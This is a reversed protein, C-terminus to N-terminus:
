NVCITRKADDIYASTVNKSDDICAFPVNQIMSVRLHLSKSDDIFASPVKQIMLTRLLLTKFWRHVCISRKSDSICAYPGNQIISARLPFTKFRRHVCISRKQIVSIRVRFTESGNIYTSPVNQIMSARLDIKKKLWQHVCISHKPQDISVKFGKYRHFKAGNCMPIQTKLGQSRQVKADRFRKIKSGKFRYIM